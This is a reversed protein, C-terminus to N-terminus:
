VGRPSSRECTCFRAPAAAGLPPSPRRVRLHLVRTRDCRWPPPLVRRTHHQHATHARLAICHGSADVRNRGSAQAHAGVEKVLPRASMGSAMALFVFLVAAMGAIVVRENHADSSAAGSALVLALVASYVINFSLRFMRREGMGNTLALQRAKRQEADTLPALKASSAQKLLQGDYDPTVEPDADEAMWGVLQAAVDTAARSSGDDAPRLMQTMAALRKLWVRAMSVLPSLLIFPLTFLAESMDSELYGPSIAAARIQLAFHVVRGICYTCLLICEVRNDNGASHWHRLYIFSAGSAIALLSYVVLFFLFMVASTATFPCVVPTTSAIVSVHHMSM